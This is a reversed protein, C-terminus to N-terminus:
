SSYGLARKTRFRSLGFFSSKMDYCILLVQNLSLYWKSQTSPVQIGMHGRDFNTLMRDVVSECLLNVVDECCRRVRLGLYHNWICNICGTDVGLGLPLTRM